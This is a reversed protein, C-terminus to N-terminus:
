IQFRVIGANEPLLMFENKSKLLADADKKDYGMSKWDKYFDIKDIYYAIIKKNNKYEEIHTLISRKIPETVTIYRSLYQINETLAKEYSSKLVIDACGNVTCIVEEYYNSAAKQESQELAEAPTTQNMWDMLDDEAAAEVFVDVSHTLRVKYIM